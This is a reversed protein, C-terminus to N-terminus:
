NGLIRFRFDNPLKQLLEYDFNIINTISDRKVEFRYQFVALPWFIIVLM